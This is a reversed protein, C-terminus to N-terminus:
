PLRRLSLLEGAPNFQLEFSGYIGEHTLFPRFHHAPISVRRGDRSFVQIRNAQGLYVARMREAPLAIDLVLSPM